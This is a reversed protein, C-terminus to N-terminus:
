DRVLLIGTQIGQYPKKGSSIIFIKLAKLLSPTDWCIIQKNYWFTPKVDFINSNTVLM